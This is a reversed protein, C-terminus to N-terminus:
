YNVLGLLKNLKTEVCFLWHLFIGLIFMFLACKWYKYNTAKHLGFALLFTGLIDLLAFDYPVPGIRLSHIGGKPIGLMNKFACLKIM